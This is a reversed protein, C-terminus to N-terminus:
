LDTHSKSLIQCTASRRTLWLDTDDASESQGFRIWLKELSKVLRPVEKSAGSTVQPAGVQPYSGLGHLELIFYGPRQQTARSINRTDLGARQLAWRRHCPQAARARECRSCAGALPQARQADKNALM